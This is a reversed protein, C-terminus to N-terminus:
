ESEMQRDTRKYLICPRLLGYSSPMKVTLIHTVWDSLTRLFNGWIIFVSLSFAEPSVLQWASCSMFPRCHHFSQFLFVPQSLWPLPAWQPAASCVPLFLFLFRSPSSLTTLTGASWLFCAGFMLLSAFPSHLLPLLLPVAGAHLFPNHFVPFIRCKKDTRRKWQREKCWHSQTVGSFDVPFCSLTLVKFGFLAPYASRCPRFACLESFLAM